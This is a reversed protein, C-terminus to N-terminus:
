KNQINPAQQKKPNYKTELMDREVLDRLYQTVNTNNEWAKFKLYAEHGGPLKLNIKYLGENEVQKPKRTDPTDPTYRTDPTDEEIDEDPLMRLGSYLKDKDIGKAM